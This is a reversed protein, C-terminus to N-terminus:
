VERATWSYPEADRRAPGARTLGPKKKPGPISDAIRKAVEQPSNDAPFTGWFGGPTGYFVEKASTYGRVRFIRRDLNKQAEDSARVFSWGAPAGLEQAYAQLREPTDHQPDRTISTLFVNQGVQDGLKDAIAKLNAMRRADDERRTSFFNVLVITRRLAEEDLRLPDTIPEGTDQDTLQGDGNVGISRIEPRAVSDGPSRFVRDFFEQKSSM